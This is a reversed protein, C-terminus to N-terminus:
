NWYRRHMSFKKILSIPLKKYKQGLKYGTIKAFNHLVSIPFYLPNTKSLYKLESLLFKKGEGGAGGFHERIWPEDAHFVGIDFYRKFEERISYNHSHRVVADSIYAVSYGAMVSKAAFYMDESLITSNPFGKLEM